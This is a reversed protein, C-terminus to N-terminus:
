GAVHNWVRLKALRSKLGGLALVRLFCRPACNKIECAGIKESEKEESEKEESDRLVTKVHTGQDSIQNRSKRRGNARLM